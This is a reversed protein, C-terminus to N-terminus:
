LQGKESGLYHQLGELIIIQSPFEQSTAKIITTYQPYLFDPPAGPVYSTPVLEHIRITGM